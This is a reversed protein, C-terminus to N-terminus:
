DSCSKKSHVIRRLPSSCVGRGPGAIPHQCAPPQRQILPDSSPTQLPRKELRFIASSNPNDYEDTLLRAPITLFLSRSSFVNLSSNSLSLARILIHCWSKQKQATLSNPMDILCTALLNSILGRPTPNETSLPFAM